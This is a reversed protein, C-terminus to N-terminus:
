AQVLNSAKVELISLNHICCHHDTMEECREGCNMFIHDKIYEIAKSKRNAKGKM